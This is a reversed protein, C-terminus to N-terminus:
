TMETDGVTPCHVFGPCTPFGSPRQARVAAPLAVAERVSVAQGVPHVLRHGFPERVAILEAPARGAAGTTTRGTPKLHSVADTPSANARAPMDSGSVGLHFSPSPLLSPLLSPPSLPTCPLSPPLPVSPLSHNATTPTTTTERRFQVSTDRSPRSRRADHEAPRRAHHRGRGRMRPGPDVGVSARPARTLSSFFSTRM